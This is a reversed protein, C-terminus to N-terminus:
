ELWLEPEACVKAATPRLSDSYAPTPHHSRNGLGSNRRSLRDELRRILPRRHSTKAVQLELPKLVLIREPKTSMSFRGAKVVNICNELLRERMVLDSRGVTVIGIAAYGRPAQVVVQIYHRM